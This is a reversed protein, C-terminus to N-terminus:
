KQNEIAYRKNKFEEETMQEMKEDNFIIKEFKDLEPQEGTTNGFNQKPDIACDSIIAATFKGNTGEKGRTEDSTTMHKVLKTMTLIDNNVQHTSGDLLFSKLKTAHKPFEGDFNKLNYEISENRLMAYNLAAWKEMSSFMETLGLLRELLLNRELSGEKCAADTLRPPPKKGETEKIAKPSMVTGQVLFQKGSKIMAQLLSFNHKEEFTMPSLVVSEAAKQKGPEVWNIGRKFHGNLPDKNLYVNHCIRDTIDLFPTEQYNWAPYMKGSIVLEFINSLTMPQKLESLRTTGGDLKKLDPFFILQTNGNRWDVPTHKSKSSKAWATLTDKQLAFIGSFFVFRGLVDAVISWNTYKPTPMAETQQSILSGFEKMFMDLFQNPRVMRGAYEVMSLLEKGIMYGIRNKLNSWIYKESKKIKKEKGSEDSNKKSQKAPQDKDAEWLLYQQLHGMLIAQPILLCEEIFATDLESWKPGSMSFFTYPEVKFMDALSDAKILKEVEDHTGMVNQLFRKVAHLTDEDCVFNTVLLTYASAAKPHRAELQEKKEGVYFKGHKRECFTDLMFSVLYENDDHMPDPCSISRMKKKLEVAFEAESKLLELGVWNRYRLMHRFNVDGIKDYWPIKDGKTNPTHFFSNYHTKKTLITSVFKDGTLETDWWLKKPIEDRIREMSSDPELPPYSMKNLEGPNICADVISGTTGKYMEDLTDLVGILIDKPSRRKPATKKNQVLESYVKLTKRVKM